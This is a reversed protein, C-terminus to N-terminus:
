GKMSQLRKKGQLSKIRHRQVIHVYVMGATFGLCLTLINWFLELDIFQNM